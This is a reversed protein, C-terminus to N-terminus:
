PELRLAIKQGIPLHGLPQMWIILGDLAIRLHHELALAAREVALEPHPVAAAVPHPQSGPGLKGSRLLLQRQAWTIWGPHATVGTCVMGGRQVVFFPEDRRGNYLIDSVEHEPGRWIELPGYWDVAAWAGADLGVGVGILAFAEEPPLDWCDRM